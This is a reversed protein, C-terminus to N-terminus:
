KGWYGLDSGQHLEFNAQLALMLDILFACISLPFLLIVKGFSKYRLSQFRRALIFPPILWWGEVITMKQVCEGLWDPDEENLKKILSGAHQQSDDMGELYKYILKNVTDLVILWREHRLLRDVQTYAEFTHSAAKALIVRNPDASSRLGDTVVMTYVFSDEGPLCTPLWIQHLTESRGCYLQGCIWASCEEINKKESLGSALVSLKEMLNRKQKLAINKIPKDVAVWANPMKELVDIMSSLTDSQLFEIDADMLFLYKASPKSLQHVYTNWANSKGAQTLECVQWCVHPYDTPTVLEELTSRAVTATDDTCGNPVVIIEISVDSNAQSLLSQQLLSVLTQRISLSENYALVGISINLQM